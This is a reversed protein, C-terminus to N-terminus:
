LDVITARQVRHAHHVAGAAAGRYRGDDQQPDQLIAGLDAPFIGAGAGSRAAPVIPQRDHRRCIHGYCGGSRDLDSDAAVAAAARAREALRIGACVPSPV